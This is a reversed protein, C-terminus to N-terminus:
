IWMSHPPSFLSISNVAWFLSDFDKWTSKQLPQELAFLNCSLRSNNQLISWIRCLQSAEHSWFEALRPVGGVALIQQESTRRQSTQGKWDIVSLRDTNFASRNNTVSWDSWCRRGDHRRNEASMIRFCYKARLFLKVGFLPKLNGGEKQTKRKVSLSMLRWGAPASHRGSTSTSM